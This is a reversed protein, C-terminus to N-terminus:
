AELRTRVEALRKEARRIQWTLWEHRAQADIPTADLERQYTGIQISLEALEEELAERENRSRPM